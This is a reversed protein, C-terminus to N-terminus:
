HALTRGGCACAAPPTMRPSSRAKVMEMISVRQIWILAEPARRHHLWMPTHTHTTHQVQTHM